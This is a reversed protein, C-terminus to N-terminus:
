LCKCIKGGQAQRYRFQMECGVQPLECGDPPVNIGHNLSAVIFCQVSITPWINRDPIVCFERAQSTHSLFEEPKRKVLYTTPDM